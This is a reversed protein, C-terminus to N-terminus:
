KGVECCRTENSSFRSKDCNRRGCVLTGNCGRDTRCHGQGENCPNDKTCCFRVEAKSGGSCESPELVYNFYSIYYDYM